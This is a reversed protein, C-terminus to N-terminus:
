APQKSRQVNSVKVAVWMRILAMPGVGLERAEAVLVKWHADSLRLTIMKDLPQKVHLPEEVPESEDWLSEGSDIRAIEREQEETLM